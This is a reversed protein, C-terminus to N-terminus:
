RSITNPVRKNAGFGRLHDTNGVDITSTYNGSSTGYSVKYGGVNSSTSADWALNATGAFLNGSFLFLALGASLFLSFLERLSTNIITSQQVDSDDFLDPSHQHNKGSLKAPVLSIKPASLLSLTFINKLKKSLSRKAKNNQTNLNM